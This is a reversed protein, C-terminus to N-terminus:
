AVLLEKEVIQVVQESIKEAEVPNKEQKSQYYQKNLEALGEKTFISKIIDESKKIIFDKDDLKEFFLSFFYKNILVKRSVGLLDKLFNYARTRSYVGDDNNNVMLCNNKPHFM